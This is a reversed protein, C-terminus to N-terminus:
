PLDVIPTGEQATLRRFLDSLRQTMPGPEGSGIVRGDVNVVPALEGMTGTCFVEESRYIETLSLDKERWPIQHAQCLELITGRTIGEPCATEHSTLV